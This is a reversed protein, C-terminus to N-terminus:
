TKLSMSKSKKNQMSNNNCLQFGYPFALSEWFDHSFPQPENNTHLFPTPRATIVMAWKTVVFIKTPLTKTFLTIALARNKLKSKLLNM